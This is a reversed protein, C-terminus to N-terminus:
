ERNRLRKIRQYICIALIGLLMLLLIVAVPSYQVAVSYWGLFGINWAFGFKACVVLYFMIVLTLFMALLFFFTLDQERNNTGSGV